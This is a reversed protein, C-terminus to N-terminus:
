AQDGREYVIRGGVVTLDAAIDKIEAEPVTLPDATLAAFDALKGAEITGRDNESMCLYAGDLSAARLAEERSIRQEPAVVEGTAQDVRAVAQWVPHFLSVPQNDTALSFPVGAERLRKLPTIDNAREAGLRDRLSSAIRYLNRNTNTTTVLGMDRIRSVQDETLVSIHGLVWRKGAIPEIRDAEEICELMPTTITALRIDHRAAEVMLAVLKDRPLAHDYYRSSWGTYPNAQARLQDAITEPADAEGEKQAFLGRVRLHSNGLGPGALWGAWTGFLAAPDVEGLSAWSPSFPLEARM